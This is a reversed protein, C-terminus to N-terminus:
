CAVALKYHRPVIATGLEEPCDISRVYMPVRAKILPDLAKRHLGMKGAHNWSLADEMVICDLRRAETDHRPDSTYVGDVDTWRELKLANLGAALLSASYDSGGRGLTTTVGDPSSGIFGTVVAIGHKPLHRRWRQITKYTAQIDVQAAGFTADTHILSAADVAENPMGADVLALSFLQVSLREGVAMLEDQLATRQQLEESDTPASLSSLIDAIRTLYEELTVIFHRRSRLSLVDHAHETHREYLAHLVETPAFHPQEAGQVAEALWDTVGRLASVVVTLPTNSEAYRRIISVANRFRQPGGVASGGFKLVVM